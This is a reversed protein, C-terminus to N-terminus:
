RSTEVAYWGPQRVPVGATNPSTQGDVDYVYMAGDETCYATAWGDDYFDIISCSRSYEPTGIYPWEQTGYPAHLNTDQAQADTVHLGIGALALAILCFVLPGNGALIAALHRYGRSIMADRRALDDDTPDLERLVKSQCSSCYVDEAPALLRECSYCHDLDGYYKSTDM